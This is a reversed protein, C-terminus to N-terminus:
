LSPQQAIVDISREVAHLHAPHRIGPGLIRIESEPFQIDEVTIAREAPMHHIDTVVPVTPDMSEITRDLQDALEVVAGIGAAGTVGLRLARFKFDGDCQGLPGDSPVHKTPDPMTAEGPVPRDGLDTAFEDVGEADLDRIVGQGPVSPM